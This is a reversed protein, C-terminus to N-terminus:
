KTMLGVIGVHLIVDEHFCAVFLRKHHRCSLHTFMTVTM